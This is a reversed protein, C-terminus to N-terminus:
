LHPGSTYVTESGHKLCAEETHIPLGAWGELRGTAYSVTLRHMDIRYCLFGDVQAEAPAFQLM